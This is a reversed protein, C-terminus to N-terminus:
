QFEDRFEVRIIRTRRLKRRFLPGQKQLNVSPSRHCVIRRLNGGAERGKNQCCEFSNFLYPFPNERSVFLFFTDILRKIKRFRVSNFRMTQDIPQNISKLKNKSKNLYVEQYGSKATQQAAFEDDRSSPM